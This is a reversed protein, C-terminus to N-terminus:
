WRTMRVCREAGPVLQCRPFHLSLHIASERLSSYDHNAAVRHLVNRAADLVFRYGARHIPSSHNALHKANKTQWSYDDKGAPHVNRVADAMAHFAPPSHRASRDAAIKLLSNPLRATM